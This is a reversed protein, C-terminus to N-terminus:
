CNPIKWTFCYVNSICECGYGRLENQTVMYVHNNPSAQLRFKAIKM